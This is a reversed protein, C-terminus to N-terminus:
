RLIIVCTSVVSYALLTGISMMNILQNLDFILALIAAFLGSLFNAVIPIKTRPWVYGLWSFILGDSALAYVVRSMPYMSAPLSYIFFNEFSLLGFMLIWKYHAFYINVFWNLLGAIASVSVVPNMWHLNVYDFAQPYPVNLDAMYYPIMLPLEFSLTVYCITVILLTLM